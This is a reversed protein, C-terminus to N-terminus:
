SVTIQDATYNPSLIYMSSEYSANSNAVTITGNNNATISIYSAGKLQTVVPTTDSGFIIWTGMFGTATGNYTGIIGMINNKITVTLRGSKPVKHSHILHDYRTYTNAINAGNGDQIAKTASNATGASDAYAASWFRTVATGGPATTGANTLNITVNVGNNTASGTIRHLTCNGWQENYKGYIQWTSTASKKIYFELTNGDTSFNYLAPDTNNDSVFIVQIRQYGYGRRSVEFVIPRNVYATTVTLTALLFYWNQGGGAVEGLGANATL